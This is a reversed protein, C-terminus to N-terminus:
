ERQPAREVIRGECQDAPTFCVSITATTSQASFMPSALLFLALSALFRVERMTTTGIRPFTRLTHDFRPVKIIWIKADVRQRHLAPVEM